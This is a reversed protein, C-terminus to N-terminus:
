ITISSAVKNKMRPIAVCACEGLADCYASHPLPIVKMRNTKNILTITM